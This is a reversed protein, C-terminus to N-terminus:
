DIHDLIVKQVIKKFQKLNNRIEKKTTKFNSNNRKHAIENRLRTFISEQNKNFENQTFETEPFNNKIYKEVLNQGERGNNSTVNLLINYLLMFSAIPNNENIAIRYLDIYINDNNHKDIITSLQNKTVSPKSITLFSSLGSHDENFSAIKKEIIKAQKIGSKYEFSLIDLIKSILNNGIQLKNDTKCGPLFFLKIKLIDKDLSSFVLKMKSKKGIFIMKEKFKIPSKEVEFTIYEKLM